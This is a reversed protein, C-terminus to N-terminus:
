KVFILYFMTCYVVAYVAFIKILLILFKINEKEMTLYNKFNIIIFILSIFFDLFVRKFLAINKYLIYNTKENKM